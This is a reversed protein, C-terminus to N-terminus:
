ILFSKRFALKTTTTQCRLVSFDGGRPRHPLDARLVAVARFKFHVREASVLDEVACQDSGLM